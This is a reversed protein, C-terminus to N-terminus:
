YTAEAHTENKKNDLLFIQVHSYLLYLSEKKNIIIKELIFYNILMIKNKINSIM